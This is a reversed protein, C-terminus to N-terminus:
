KNDQCQATSLLLFPAFLDVWAFADLAELLLSLTPPLKSHRSDIKVDQVEESCDFATTAVVLQCFVSLYPVWKHSLNPFCFNEFSLQFIHRKVTIVLTGTVKKAAKSYRQWQSKPWQIYSQISQILLMKETQKTLLWSSMNKSLM